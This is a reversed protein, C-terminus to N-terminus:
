AKRCDVRADQRRPTFERVDVLDARAEQHLARQVSLSSQGSKWKAMFSMLERRSWASFDSDSTERVQEAEDEIPRLYNEM